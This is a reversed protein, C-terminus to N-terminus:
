PAHTSMVCERNKWNTAASVRHIISTKAPVSSPIRKVAASADSSVATAFSIASMGDVGPLMSHVCNLTARTTQTTSVLVNVHRMTQLREFLENEKANSASELKDGVCYTADVECTRKREKAGGGCTASCDGFESWESWQPCKHENCAGTESDDGECICSPHNKNDGVCFIPDSNCIRTRTHEGGGGSFVKAVNLIRMSKGCQASCTGWNQWEGYTACPHTM